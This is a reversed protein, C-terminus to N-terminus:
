VRPASKPEVEINHPCNDAAESGEAARPHDGVCAGCGGDESMVLKVLDNVGKTLVLIGQQKICYVLSSDKNRVKMREKFSM